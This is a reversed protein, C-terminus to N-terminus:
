SLDDVIEQMIQKFRDMNEESSALASLPIRPLADARDDPFKSNKPLLGSLADLTSIRLEQDDYPPLHKFRQFPVEVSPQRSFGKVSVVIVGDENVKLRGHLSPVAVGGFDVTLKANKAWTYIEEAIRANDASGPLQKLYKFFNLSNTQPDLKRRQRATEPAPLPQLLNTRKLANLLSKLGAERRKNQFVIAHRAIMYIPLISDDIHAIFIPKRLSSAYLFENEVWSSNRGDVSMVVVMAGSHEVAKEIEKSFQGQDIRQQAIWSDVSAAKLQKALWDAFGLDEEAYSIFVHPKPDAM